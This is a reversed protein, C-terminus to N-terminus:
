FNYYARFGISQQLTYKPAAGINIKDYSPNYLLQIIYKSSLTLNLGIGAFVGFGIGELNHYRFTGYASQNYPNTPQYYLSSSTYYPSSLDITLNNITATNKLYKAMVLDLGGEVFFNLLPNDGLIRQFGIQTILREEGGVISFQNFNTTQLGTGTNIPTPTEIIFNGTATLKTANLNVIIANKNDFCYRTNLGIQIAVNYKLKTPMDTSNFSWTGPGPSVGLAQAIRDTQTGGYGGYAYIMQNLFSNTFNNQNGNPDLGYGNYLNATYKNAFVTGVQLGVHFGKMNKVVPPADDTDTTDQAFVPLACFFCLGVFAIVKYLPSGM